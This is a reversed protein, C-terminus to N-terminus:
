KRSTLTQKRKELLRDVAAIDEKSLSWNGALVTEEIQSPRRTGVIAATVETRRLVWAIALQAVTKGKKEAIASLGEVLELNISLEPEQFHADGRRHDNQPL